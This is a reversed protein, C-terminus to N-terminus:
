HQRVLVHVVAVVVNRVAPRNHTVLSITCSYHEKKKQKPQTQQKKELRRKGFVYLQQNIKFICFVAVATYLKTRGSFHIVVAPVPACHKAKKQYFFVAAMFPIQVSHATTCLIDPEDGHLTTAPLTRPSDDNTNAQKKQNSLCM